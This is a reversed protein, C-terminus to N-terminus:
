RLKVRFALPTILQAVRDEAGKKVDWKKPASPSKGLRIENYYESRFDTFSPMLSALRSQHFWHVETNTCSYDRLPM